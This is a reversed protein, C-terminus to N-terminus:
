RSDTNPKPTSETTQPSTETETPPPSSETPTTNASTGDFETTTQSTTPQPTGETTVEPTTAGDPPPPANEPCDEYIDANPDEVSGDPHPRPGCEVNYTAPDECAQNQLYLKIAHGSVLHCRTSVRDCPEYLSLSGGSAEPCTNVYQNFDYTGDENIQGKTCQIFNECNDPDAFMGEATCTFEADASTALWSLLLAFVVKARM